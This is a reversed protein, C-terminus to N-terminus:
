GPLDSLMEKIIPKKRLKYGTRCFELIISAIEYSLAGTRTDQDIRQLMKRQLAAIEKAFLIKKASQGSDIANRDSEPLKAIKADRRINTEPIGLDRGLGRKSCGISVLMNILHGRKVAGMNAWSKRLLEIQKRVNPKLTTRYHRNQNRRKPEALKSDITM